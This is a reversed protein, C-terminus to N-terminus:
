HANGISKEEEDEEEGDEDKDNAECALSCNYLTQLSIDASSQPHSAHRTMKMKIMTGGIITYISTFKKRRIELCPRETFIRSNKIDKEVEVILSQLTTNLGRQRRGMFLPTNFVLNGKTSTL